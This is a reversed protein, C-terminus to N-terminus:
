RGWARALHEDNLKSTDVDPSMECWRLTRIDGIRLVITSLKDHDFPEAGKSILYDRESVTSRRAFFYRKPHRRFFEDELRSVFDFDPGRPLEAVKKDHFM